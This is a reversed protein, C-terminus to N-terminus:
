PCDSLATNQGDQLQWCNGYIDSYIIQLSFGNSTLKEDIQRSLSDNNNVEVLTFGNSNPTVVNGINLERRGLGKSFGIESRIFDFTTSYM